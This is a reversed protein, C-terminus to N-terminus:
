NLLWCEILRLNHVKNQRFKFQFAITLTIPFSSTRSNPRSTSFIKFFVDRNTM